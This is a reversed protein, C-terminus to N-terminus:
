CEMVICVTFMSQSEQLECLQDASTELKMQLAAATHEVQECVLLFNHIYKCEMSAQAFLYFYLIINRRDVKMQKKRYIAKDM